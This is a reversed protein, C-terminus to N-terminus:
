DKYEETYVEHTGDLWAAEEDSLEYGVAQLHEYLQVLKENKEFRGNYDMCDETGRELRLYVGLFLTNYFGEDAREALVRSVAEDYTEGKDESEWSHRFKNEIGFAKRFVAEDIYAVRFLAELAFLKINEEEAAAPTFGTAFAIRMEYAQKAIAKGRKIRAEREVQEPTKGTTAGNIQERYIDAHRDYVVFFYKVTDANDPKKVKGDEYRVSGFYAYKSVTGSKVETASEKLEELIGPKNKICIEETLANKLDWAFNSTGIKDLVKNRLAPDEIKSLAAYDALTGGRGVSAALTEQDLEMLFLRKNIATKSMGTKKSVSSVTDGLDLMMQFGEAQEQINLENRQINEILMAAIQDKRSMGTVTCPVETLDAIKAAAHRRHGIVISYGGTYTDPDFADMDQDIVPVVTLNQLIGQAKISSTLDKLDGLDRRPNDPNPYLRDIAINTIM